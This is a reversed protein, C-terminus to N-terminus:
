ASALRRGLFAGHPLRFITRECNFDAHVMEYLPSIEEEAKQLGVELLPPHSMGHAGVIHGEKIMRYVLEDRVYPGTAFFVARVNKEALMDLIM